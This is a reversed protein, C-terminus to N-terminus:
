PKPRKYTDTLNFKLKLEECKEILINLCDQSVKFTNKKDPFNAIAYDEIYSYVFPKDFDQKVEEIKEIFFKALIEDNKAYFYDMMYLPYHPYNTVKDKHFAIATDIDMHNLFEDLYSFNKSNPYFSHIMSYVIDEKFIYDQLNDMNDFFIHRAVPISWLGLHGKSQFVNLVDQNFQLTDKIVCPNKESNQSIHEKVSKYFQVPTLSQLREHSEKQLLWIRQESDDYAPDSFVGSENNKNDESM